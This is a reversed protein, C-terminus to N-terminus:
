FNALRSVGRLLDHASPVPVGMYHMITIVFLGLVASTALAKVFAASLPTVFAVVSKFFRRIRRM